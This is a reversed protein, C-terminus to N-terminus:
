CLITKVFLPSAGFTPLVHYSYGAPQKNFMEFCAEATSNNPIVMNVLGQPGQQHLEACMPTGDPLKLYKTLTQQLSLHGLVNRTDPCQIETTAVLDSIGHVEVSILSMNYCTHDQSMQIFRSIDGKPSDWDVTKTIHAHGGWIPAALKLEKIYSILTHLFPIAKVDCEILHAWQAEQM